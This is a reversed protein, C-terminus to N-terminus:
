EQYFGYDTIQTELNCYFDCLTMESNNSYTIKLNNAKFVRM